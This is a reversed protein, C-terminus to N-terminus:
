PSFNQHSSKLSESSGCFGQFLCFAQWNALRIFTKMFLRVRTTILHGWAPGWGWPPSVLTCWGVDCLDHTNVLTSSIPDPKLYIFSASSRLSSTHVYFTCNLLWKFFGCLCIVTFCWCLLMFLMWCMAAAHWLIDQPFVSTVYWVMCGCTFEVSRLTSSTKYVAAKLLARFLFFDSNRFKVWVVAFAKIQCSVLGTDTFAPHPTSLNLYSFLFIFRQYPGKM